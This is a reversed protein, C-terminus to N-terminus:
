GVFGFGEKQSSPPHSRFFQNQKTNADSKKGGYAKGILKGVTSKVSLCGEDRNTDRQRRKMVGGKM